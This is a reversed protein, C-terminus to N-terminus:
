RSSYGPSGARIAAAWAAQAWAPTLAMAPRIAVPSRKTPSVSVLRFISAAQWGSQTSISPAATLWIAALFPTGQTMRRAM